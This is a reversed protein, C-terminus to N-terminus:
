DAILLARQSSLRLTTAADTTANATRNATQTLLALALVTSFHDIV